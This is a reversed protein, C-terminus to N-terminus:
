KDNIKILGITSFLSLIFIPFWVSLFVPIRENIGMINFVYNLYYIFVSLIIGLIINFIKSKNYKINMMLISGILIMIILYVNGSSIVLSKKKDLISRESSIILNNNSEVEVDGIANLINGEDTVNISNSKIKFEDSISSNNFIVLLCIYLILKIKNIM